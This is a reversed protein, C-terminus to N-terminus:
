LRFEFRLEVYASPDVNRSFITGHDEEHVRLRRDVIAGAEVELQLWNALRWDFGGGVRVQRDRFSLDDLLSRDALRYGDTSRFGALYTDLFPTLAFEAQLGLERTRVTIRETARWRLSLYPDIDFDADDLPSRLSIGVVARLRGPIEYGVGVGGGAGLGGDFNSDEWRSGISGSGVVSWQEGNALWSTDSGIRRAGELALRVSHLDLDNILRDPDLTSGSPQTLAPGWVDGHFSYHAEALRLDIRLATRENVPWTARTSLEPRTGTVHGSGAAAEPAIFTRLQIRVANTIDAEPFLPTAFVSTEDSTGGGESPGDPPPPAAREDPDAASAVTAAVGLWAALAAGTLRPILAVRRVGM